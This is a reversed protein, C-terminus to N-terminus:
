QPAIEDTHDDDDSIGRGGASELDFIVETTDTLRVGTYLTLVRSTANEGQPRLSHDASYKAPFSPHWQLIINVQGSIWFRSTEPHKLITTSEDPEGDPPTDPQAQKDESQPPKSDPSQAFLAAPCIIFAALM